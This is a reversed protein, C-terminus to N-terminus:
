LPRLVKLELGSTLGGDGTEEIREICELEYRQTDLVVGSLSVDSGAAIRGTRHRGADDRVAWTGSEVNARVFVGRLTVREEALERQSQLREYLISAQSVSIERHRAGRSPSSWNYEVTSGTEAIFHLFRKYAAVLHGSNEKATQLARETDQVDETLEDVKELAQVLEVEGFMDADLKSHMHVTFSGQSFAFVELLYRDANEDQTTATLEQLAQLYAHKVLEQYTALAQSLHHVGIQLREAAEPPSLRLHVIAKGKKTSEEVVGALRDAEEVFETLFLGPEPLWKDAVAAVPNMVQSGEEGSVGMTFWEQVEPKELAERLDLGGSQLLRLRDVTIPVSLYTDGEETRQVLMSLYLQGLEDRAVAVQVGDCYVLTRAFRVARAM